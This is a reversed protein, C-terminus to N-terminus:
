KRNENLENLHTRIKEIMGGVENGSYLLSTEYRCWDSTNDRVASLWNFSGEILTNNDLWLSKNHIKPIVHLSIRMEHLLECALLFNNKKDNFYKDTYVSIKVGRVIANNLLLILQEDFAKVSLFPSVINLERQVFQVCDKLLQSHESSGNIHRVLSKANGQKEQHYLTINKIENNEDAFLYRALLGLPSKKYEPNFIEMDGFVLFSDKARSVAVNLLNLNNLFAISKITRDYVPSFIVIPREAGQLAHVTGVTLGSIGRKKLETKILHIQARFPTIVAIVDHLSKGSYRKYNLLKDQNRCVWEAITKAEILNSRSGQTSCVGTVHAYGMNPLPFDTDIDKTLPLLHGAYALENCYDIIKKVCRRHERLYVGGIEFKSFKSAQQAIKMVSGNSACVGHDHSFENFQENDSIIKYKVLNYPDVGKDVGWVPQIQKTDGVVLAKKSLSFSAGAIEPTVQGAEDVILLDIFEYLPKANNGKAYGTFFRPLMYFTSVFCPALKACRSWRKKLREPNLSEKHQLEERMQQLWRAEWYHTALIFAPYRHSIDLRELVEDSSSALLAKKHSEWQKTLYITNKLLNELENLYNVNEELQKNLSEQMLNIQLDLDENNAINCKHKLLFLKNRLLRKNQAVKKIIPIGSVIRIWLPEAYLHAVWDEVLQQQIENQQQLENVINSQKNVSYDLGEPYVLNIETIRKEYEYVDSIIQQLERVQHSLKGHLYKIASDITTTPEKAWESCKALFAQELEELAPLSTVRAFCDDTFESKLESPFVKQWSQSEKDTTKSDSVLYLGYSDVIDLWREYFVNESTSNIAFSSIINTVAQNNTSSAAVIPPEKEEYAANVWMSAIISQLLTTKGTGPPGNVALIAGNEIAFFHHIAERQSTSVSYDGSMQGLHSASKAILQLKDLLPIQPTKELKCYELLLKGAIRNSLINDYLKIVNHATVTPSARLLISESSALYGDLCFDMLKSGVISNFVDLCFQYYEKWNTFKKNLKQENATFYEDVKQLDAIALEAPCPRLYIRPIWPKVGEDSPFSLTGNRNLRAPICFFAISEEYEQEKKIGHVEEVNLVRPIVIVNIFSLESKGDTSKFVDDGFDTYIKELSLEGAELAEFPILSIDSSKGIDPKQRLVDALSNRWYNIIKEHHLNM